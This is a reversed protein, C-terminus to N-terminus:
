PNYFTQQVFRTSCCNSKSYINIQVELEPTTLLEWEVNTTIQWWPLKEQADHVMGKFFRM